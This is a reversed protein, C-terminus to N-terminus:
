GLAPNANGSRDKTSHFRHQARRLTMREIIAPRKQLVILTLINHKAVRIKLTLQKTKPTEGRVQDERIRTM